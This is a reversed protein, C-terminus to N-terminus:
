CRSIIARLIDGVTSMDAFRMAMVEGSWKLVTREASRLRSESSLKQAPHALGHSFIFSTTLSNLPCHGSTKNKFTLSIEVPYCALPAHVSPQKCRLKKLDFCIRLVLDCFREVDFFHGTKEEKPAVGEESTMSARVCLEKDRKELLVAFGSRL